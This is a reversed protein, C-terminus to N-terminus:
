QELSHKQILPLQAMTFVMTIPMFGFVKFDVWFDTSFNRWVIENIIALVFFFVGWRLTLKRWGEDDLKFASDFVYGLLSKGFFLGGLLITGFLCNVITPKLKIFLEDQLYLTLAGFVLVVIGSVVPMIPLQRTLYYSVGLSITIAVMFAATALFIPQGLAGLAPFMEALQEGRSNAVFFILLPGLELALKLLPSVEKHGKDNPSHEFEM